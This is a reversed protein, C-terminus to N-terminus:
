AEPEAGAGPRVGGLVLAAAVALAIGGITWAVQFSASQVVLGFLPPGVVGGTYVGAQTVGTVAAPM